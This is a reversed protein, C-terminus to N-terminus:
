YSFTVGFRVMGFDQNDSGQAPKLENATNIVPIRAFPAGFFNTNNTGQETILTVKDEDDHGFVFNWNPDPYLDEM